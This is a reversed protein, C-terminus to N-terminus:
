EGTKEVLSFRKTLHTVAQVCPGAEVLMEVTLKAAEGARLEFTIVTVLEADLGLLKVAEGVEKSSGTLLNKV